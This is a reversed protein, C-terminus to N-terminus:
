RPLVCARVCARQCIPVVPWQARQKQKTQVANFTIHTRHNTWLQETHWYRTQKSLWLKQHRQQQKGAQLPLVKTLQRSVACSLVVFLLVLLLQVAAYM